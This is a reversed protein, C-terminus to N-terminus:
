AVSTETPHLDLNQDFLLSVCSLARISVAETQLDEPLAQLLLVSAREEVRASPGFDVSYSAARAKVALRGMPRKSAMRRIVFKSCSGGRVVM